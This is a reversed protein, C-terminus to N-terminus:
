IKKKSCAEDLLDIAKDPLFRDTIYRDAMVAAAQLADETISVKHHNEFKQKLGKLIEVTESVSPEEVLVPQFRRELAPDKEIYKRYEEITTAGITQLEGRALMPKLINAADLAGESGGTKILTHIEDIFLVDHESLNTLIAALDGPKEIAPGSTIRINVGLENAIINALTTKGLGPPGYLLVHDLAEKRAKAAEIYVSLNEKAKSQGIYEDLSRPRLGPEQAIDEELIGGNVIRDDFDM